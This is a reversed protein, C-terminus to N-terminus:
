GLCMNKKILRVKFQGREEAERVFTELDGLISHPLIEGNKNCRPGLYYMQKMEMDAQAPKMVTYTNSAIFLFFIDTFELASNNM